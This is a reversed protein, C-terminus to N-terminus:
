NEDYEYQQLRSMNIPSFTGGLIDIVEVENGHEQLMEEIEKIAKHLHKKRCKLILFNIHLHLKFKEKDMKEYEEFTIGCGLLTDYLDKYGVLYHRKVFSFRSYSIKTVM